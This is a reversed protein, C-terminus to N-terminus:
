SIELLSEVEEQLLKGEELLATAVKEIGQWVNPEEILEWCEYEHIRFEAFIQNDTWAPNEQLILALSGMADGLENEDEVEDYRYSDLEEKLYRDTRFQEGQNDYKWGSLHGACKNKVQRWLNNDYPALSVATYDRQGQGVGEIEVYRVWWKIQYAVVAHGAEHYAANEINSKKSLMVFNYM